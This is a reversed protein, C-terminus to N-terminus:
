KMLVMKKGSLFNNKSDSSVAKISYFYIGSSLRGHATAADFSVEYYGPKQEQIVLEKVSEGIANYVILRVNCEFPLSYKIKTSPNFPNPYNQELSYSQPINMLEVTIPNSYNFKGDKDIQKLRYSYIGDKLNNKDTFSYNKGSNSNGSGSIFGIKMWKSNGPQIFNGTM